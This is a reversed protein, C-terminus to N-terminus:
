EWNGFPSDKPPKNPIDKSMGIKEPKKAGKKAKDNMEEIAEAEITASAYEAARFCEYEFATVKEFAPLLGLMKLEKFEEAVQIAGVLNDPVNEPKTDFFPCPEKL